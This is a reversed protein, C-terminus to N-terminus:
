PALVIRVANRGYVQVLREVVRVVLPALDPANADIARRILDLDSEELPWGQARATLVVALRVTRNGPHVLRRVADAALSLIASRWLARVSRRFLPGGGNLAPGLDAVDTVVARVLEVHRGPADLVDHVLAAPLSPAAELVVGGAQVLDVVVRDSRRLLAAVDRAQEPTVPLLAYLLGGAMAPAEAFAPAAPSTIGFVLVLVPLIWRM